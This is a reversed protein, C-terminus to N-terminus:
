AATYGRKPCHDIEDINKDTKPLQLPMAIICHNKGLLRDNARLLHKM